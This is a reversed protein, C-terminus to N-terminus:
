RQEDFGEKGKGERGPFRGEIGKAEKGLRKGKRKGKGKEMEGKAQRVEEYGEGKGERREQRWGVEQREDEGAGEQGQREVFRREVRRVWDEWSTQRERRCTGSEVVQLGSDEEGRSCQQQQVGSNGQEEERRNRNWSNGDERRGGVESTSGAEPLGNECKCGLFVEKGCELCVDSAWVEVWKMKSERETGAGGEADGEGGQSEELHRELGREEM